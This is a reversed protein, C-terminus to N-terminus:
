KSSWPQQGGSNMHSEGSVYRTNVVDRGFYGTWEIEARMRNATENGSSIPSATTLDRSATGQQSRTCSGILGSETCM